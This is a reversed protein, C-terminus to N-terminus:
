STPRAVDAETAKKARRASFIFGLGLLGAVLLGVAFLRKPVFEDDNEDSGSARTPSPAGDKTGPGGIGAVNVKAGVAPRSGGSGGSGGGSATTSNGGLTDGAEVTRKGLTNGLLKYCGAVVLLIAGLILVYEVMSAGRVRKGAGRRTGGTSTSSM